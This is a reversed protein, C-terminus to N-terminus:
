YLTRMKKDPIEDKSSILLNYAQKGLGAELEDLNAEIQYGVVTFAPLRIERAEMYYGGLLYFTVKREEFLVLESCSLTIGM